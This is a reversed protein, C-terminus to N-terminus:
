ATTSCWEKTSCCEPLAVVAHLLPSLWFEKHEFLPSFDHALARRAVVKAKGAADVFMVTQASGSRGRDHQRGANFSLLTGDLLRAVDVRDLDSFPGPLAVSFREVPM